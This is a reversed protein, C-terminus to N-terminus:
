SKHWRRLLLSEKISRGLGDFGPFLSNSSINMMNLRSLFEMKLEKPIELKFLGSEKNVKKGIESILDCHSKLINNSISFCGQQRVLRENKKTAFVLQIVDFKKFNLFTSSEFGNFEPYLKKINAQYFSADWVYLAGDHQINEVVAFYLAIYPSGSWDVLRTPCSYHQMDVNVAISNMSNNYAIKEDLLHAQSVFEQQAEKEYFEVKCESINDGRVIRFLSSDLKWDKCSHGRYQIPSGVYTHQKNCLPELFELLLKWNDIRINNM